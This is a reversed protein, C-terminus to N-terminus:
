SSNLRTSKRDALAGMEIRLDNELTTLEASNEAHHARAEANGNNRLHGDLLARSAAKDRERVVAGHSGNCRNRQFPFGGSAQLCRKERVKARGRVCGDGAFAM